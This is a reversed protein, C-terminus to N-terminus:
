IRLYNPEMNIREQPKQECPNLLNSLYSRRLRSRPSSQLYVVMRPASADFIGVCRAMRPASPWLPRGQSVFADDRITLVCPLPPYPHNPGTRVGFPLVRSFGTHTIPSASMKLIKQIRTTWFVFPLFPQLRYAYDAFGVDKFDKLDTHIFYEKHKRKKACPNLLDLLNSRRLRSRLSLAVRM